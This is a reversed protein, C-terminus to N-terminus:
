DKALPMIHRALRRREAEVHDAGSPHRATISSGFEIAGLRNRFQAPLGEKLLALWLQSLDKQLQMPSCTDPVRGNGLSAALKGVGAMADMAAATAAAARRLNAVTDDYLSVYLDVQTALEAQAKVTAAEEREREAKRALYQDLGVQQKQAAALEELERLLATRKAEHDRKAQEGLAIAKATAADMTLSRLQAGIQSMKEEITTTM